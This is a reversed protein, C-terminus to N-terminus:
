TLATLLGERPKDGKVLAFCLFTFLTTETQVFRQAWGGGGDGDVGGRGEGEESAIM